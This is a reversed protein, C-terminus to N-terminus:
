LCTLLTLDLGKEFITSFHLHGDCISHRWASLKEGNISIDESLELSTVSSAEQFISESHFYFFRKLKPENIM